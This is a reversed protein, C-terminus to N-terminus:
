AISDATMADAAVLEIDCLRGGMGGMDIVEAGRM